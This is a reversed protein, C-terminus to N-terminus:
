PWDDLAESLDDFAVLDVARRIAARMGVVHVSCGDAALLRVVRALARLGAVDAFTVASVDMLLECPLPRDVVDTLAAALVAGTALDLEGAVVLRRGDPELRVAIGETDARTEAM